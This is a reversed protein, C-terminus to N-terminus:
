LSILFFDGQVGLIHKSNFAGRPSKVCVYTESVPSTNQRMSLITAISSENICAFGEYIM